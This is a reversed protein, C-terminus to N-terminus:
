AKKPLIGNQSDVYVIRPTITAAESDPVQRYSLIIVLDNKMALRAAAGNLCIVGSGKEGPIAYTGFREGNNLNLVEVREYPLIDAAEMLLRDITISGEYDLNVDTVRARHIKGELMTRM